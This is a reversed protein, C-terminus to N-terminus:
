CAGIRPVSAQEILRRAITEAGAAVGGEFNGIRFAPLLDAQIIQTARENTLIPELGHGVDIRVRRENPAVILLVGNDKERGGVRWANGIGYGVDEIPYNNLTPLTVVVLQDGTAQQLDASLRTLRTEAAHSLLDAQDVVRGTFAPIDRPVIPRFDARVTVQRCPATSTAAGSSEPQCGALFLPALLLM